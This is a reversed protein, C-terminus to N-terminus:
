PLKLEVEGATPVTVTWGSGDFQTYKRDFPWKKKRPRGDDDGPDVMLRVKHPGEVAGPLSEGQRYTSVAFSGDPKIQGFGRTEPEAVSQFEVAQGALLKLDDPRATVVRGQVPHTKPRDPGCGALLGAALTLLPARRSM